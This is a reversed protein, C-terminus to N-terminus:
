VYIAWHSYLKRPFEIMDGPKLQQLFAENQIRRKLTEGHQVLGPNSPGSQNAM